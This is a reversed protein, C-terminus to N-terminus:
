ETGEAEEPVEGRIEMYGVAVYTNAHSRADVALRVYRYPTEHACAVEGLLGGSQGASWGSFRGLETWVSGDESGLVRGATPNEIYATDRAYVRM